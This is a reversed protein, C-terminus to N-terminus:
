YDPMHVLVTECADVLAQRLPLDQRVDEAQQPFEDDYAGANRARRIRAYPAFARGLPPDLQARPVTCVSTAVKERPGRGRRWSCRPWRRRNATHLAGYALEVDQDALAGASKLHVGARAVLSRAAALDAPVRELLGGDLLQDVAARGQSWTEVTM